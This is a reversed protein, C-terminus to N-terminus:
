KKKKKFPALAKIPKKTRLKRTSKPLIGMAELEKETWVEFHWGRDAAYSSAANWKSQNKVYTLGESLLRQRTKGVGSKPPLTEKYPKVEIIVIRGDNYKILFDTYYRHAKKDTQCIYPIVLEESVWQEVNSNTDFWKMCHREWMSRYTVTEPDGAYKSPNVPKYRGKYTRSM